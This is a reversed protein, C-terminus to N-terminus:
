NIVANIYKEIIAPMIEGAKGTFSYDVFPSIETRTLNVEVLTAGGQKATQIMGAAPYVIASTGVIFFVDANM